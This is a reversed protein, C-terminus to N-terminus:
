GHQTRIRESDLGAAHALDRRGRSRSSHPTSALHHHLRSEAAVPKQVHQFPFLQRPNASVLVNNDKAGSDFIEAGGKVVASVYSNEFYRPAHSGTSISVSAVSFPPLFSMSGSFSCMRRFSDGGCM